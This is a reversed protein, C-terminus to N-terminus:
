SELTHFSSSSLEIILAMLLFDERKNRKFQGLKTARLVMLLSMKKMIIKNSSIIADAVLPTLSIEQSNVIVM